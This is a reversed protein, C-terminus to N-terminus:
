HQLSTFNKIGALSEIGCANVDMSVVANIEANSLVGDGDDDLNELIYERFNADPFNSANVAIDAFAASFSFLALALATCLIIFKKFM